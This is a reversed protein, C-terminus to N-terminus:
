SVRNWVFPDQIVLAQANWIRPQIGRDGKGMFQENEELKRQEAKLRINITGPSIGEGELKDRLEREEEALVGHAVTRDLIGGNVVSVIQNDYDFADDGEARHSSLDYFDIFGRLAQAATLDPERPTWGEPATRDFAVRTKVGQPRGWATWIADEEERQSNDSEPAPTNAQLNPLAGRHQLYAITMLVLNYSSLSAPGRNGAGDNIYFTSAWSKVGHILPRLLHPSINCYHLILSSNYRIKVGTRPLRSDSVTSEGDEWTTPVSTM